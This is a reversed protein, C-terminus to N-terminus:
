DWGSYLDNLQKDNVVRVNYYETVEAPYGIESLRREVAEEDSDDKTAWATNWGYDFDGKRKFNFFVWRGDNSM